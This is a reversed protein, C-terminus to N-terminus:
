SELFKFKVNDGNLHFIYFIHFAGIDTIRYFDTVTIGENYLINTWHDLGTIELTDLQTPVKGLKYRVISVPGTESVNHIDSMVESQAVNDLMTNMDYSMASFDTVQQHIIWTKACTHVTALQLYHALKSLLLIVRYAKRIEVVKRLVM